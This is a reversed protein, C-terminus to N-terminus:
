KQNGNRYLSMLEQVWIKNKKQNEINSKKNVSIWYLLMILSCNKTATKSIIRKSMIKDINKINLKKIVFIHIAFIKLWNKAQIKFHM